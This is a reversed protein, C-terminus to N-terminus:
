LNQLDRFERINGLKELQRINKIKTPLLLKEFFSKLRFINCFLKFVIYFRGFINAFFINYKVRFVAYLQINSNVINQPHIKFKVPTPFPPKGKEDDLLLDSQVNVKLCVVYNLMCLGFALFGLTTKVSKEQLRNDDIELLYVGKTTAGKPYNAIIDEGNLIKLANKPSTIHYYSVM